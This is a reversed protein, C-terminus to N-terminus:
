TSSHIQFNNRDPKVIQAVQFISYHSEVYCLMTNPYKSLIIKITKELEGISLSVRVKILGCECEPM